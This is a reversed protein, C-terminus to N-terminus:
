VIATTVMDLHFQFSLTMCALEPIGILRLQNSQSAIKVLFNLIKEVKLIEINDRSEVIVTRKLETQADLHSPPYKM